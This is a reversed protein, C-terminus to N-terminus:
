ITGSAELIYAKLFQSLKKTKQKKEEKRRQIFTVMFRFRIIQNGQFKTCIFTTYPRM